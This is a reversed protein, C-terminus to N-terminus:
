EYLPSREVEVGISVIDQTGNSNYGCQEKRLVQDWLYCTVREPTVEAVLGIPKGNMLVPIKVAHQDYSGDNKFYIEM